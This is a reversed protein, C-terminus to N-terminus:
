TKVIVGNVIAHADAISSFIVPGQPTWLITQNGPAVTAAAMTLLVQQPASM